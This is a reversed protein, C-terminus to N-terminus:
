QRISAVHLVNNRNVLGCEVDLSFGLLFGVIVRENKSFIAEVVLDRRQPYLEKRGINKVERVDIVSLFILIVDVRVRLANMGHHALDKTAVGTADNEDIIHVFCVISREGNKARIAENSTEIGIV